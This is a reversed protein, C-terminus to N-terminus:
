FCFLGLLAFFRGFAIVMKSMIQALGVGHWRRGGLRHRPAYAAAGGPAEEKRKALKCKQVYPPEELCLKENGIGDM